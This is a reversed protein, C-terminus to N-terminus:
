DKKTQQAAYTVMQNFRDVGGFYSYNTSPFLKVQNEFEQWQGCWAAYRAYNHRYGAKDPYLKFFQSFALQIDSWVNTRQWYASRSSEDQLERSAEYHADALLLRVSGTYNTNLTNGALSFWRMLAAMGVRVCINWSRIAFIMIRRTM